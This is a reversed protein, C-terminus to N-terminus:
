PSPLPNTVRIRKVKKTVKPTSAKEDDVIIPKKKGRKIVTIKYKEKSFLLYDILSTTKHTVLENYTNGLADVNLLPSKDKNLIGFVPGKKSTVAKYSGSLVILCKQPADETIFAISNINL